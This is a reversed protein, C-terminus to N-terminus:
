LYIFFLAHLYCASPHAVTHLFIFGSAAQRRQVEASAFSLSHISVVTSVFATICIEKKQIASAAENDANYCNHLLVVQVNVWSHSILSTWMSSLVFRM